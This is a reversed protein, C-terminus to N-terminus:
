VGGNGGDWSDWVASVRRGVLRRELGEGGIRVGKVEM